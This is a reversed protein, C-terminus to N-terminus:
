RDPVLYITAYDVAEAAYALAAQVDEATIGYGECVQDMTGGGSLSGLIVQVPVRTGKVVAKGGMTKPDLTIREEWRM